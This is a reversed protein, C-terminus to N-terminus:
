QGFHVVLSRLLVSGLLALGGALEPRNRLLGAALLALAASLYFLGADQWLGAWAAREGADGHALSWPALLAAVGAALSVPPALRPLPGRVFLLWFGTALALGTIPMLALQFGDWLPRGPNEALLMGPYALVVVSSAFLLPVLLRAPGKELALALTLLLTLALGWAGLSIASAPRLTLFLWVHTFRFRAASELWLVALDLLVFLASWLLMARAAGEGRHRALAALFASGGALGVLFFHVLTLGHWVEGSPPIGYFSTM